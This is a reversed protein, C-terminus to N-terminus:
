SLRALAAALEGREEYLLVRKLTHRPPEHFYGARHAAVRGTHSKPPPTAAQALTRVKLAEHNAWRRALRQALPAPDALAREAAALRAALRRTEFLPSRFSPRRSRTRLAGRRSGSLSLRLHRM